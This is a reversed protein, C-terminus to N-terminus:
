MPPMPALKYWLKKATPTQDSERALMLEYEKDVDRAALRVELPIDLDITSRIPKDPDLHYAGARLWLLACFHCGGSKYGAKVDRPAGIHGFEHAGIKIDNRGLRHLLASNRIFAACPDCLKNLALISDETASSEFRDKFPLEAVGDGLDIATASM